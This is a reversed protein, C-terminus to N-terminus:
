RAATIRHRYYVVVRERDQSGAGLLTPAHRDDAPGADVAHADGGVPAVRAERGEACDGAVPAAAVVDAERRDGGRGAALITAALPRRQLLRNGGVEAERRRGPQGLRDVM